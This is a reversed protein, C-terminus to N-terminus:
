AQLPALSASDWAIVIEAGPEPLPAGGPLVLRLVEGRAQLLLLADGGRFAIDTV